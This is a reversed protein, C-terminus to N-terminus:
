EFIERLPREYRRKVLAVLKAEDEIALVHLLLVRGDPSVQAWATGPVFTVIMALAALGKPDRLDLPIRVFGSPVASARRTLIVWAVALNSRLMDAAVRAVLAILVLPKRIRLPGTMLRATVAPWFLALAAGLLLTGPSASQALLLWLLFLGISLAPSPLLRRM